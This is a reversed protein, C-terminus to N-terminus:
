IGFVIDLFGPVGNNGAGTALTGTIVNGQTAFDLFLDQTTSLQGDGNLDVFIRARGQVGAAGGDIDDNDFEIVVSRRVGGADVFFDNANADTIQNGAGSRDRVIAANIALAGQAALNFGSLDIKDESAVFPNTLVGANFTGFSDIAGYQSQGLSTYVIEDRLGAILQQNLQQGNQAGARMTLDSINLVETGDDAFSNIAALTGLTSANAVTIDTVAANVGLLTLEGADIVADGNNSVWQFYATGGGAATTDVVIIAQTGNAQAATWDKTIATDLAAPTNAAIFDDNTFVLVSGTAYAFNATNDVTQSTGNGVAGVIDADDIITLLRLEAADITADNAANATWVYVSVSDTTDLAILIQEGATINGAANAIGGTLQGAVLTMNTRDSSALVNDQTVLYVGNPQAADFATAATAQYIVGTGQLASWGAARDIVITDNGSDDFDNLNDFSTATNQNLAHGTDGAGTYLIRDNGGGGAINDGGGRGVLLDNGNGGNIVNDNDNGFLRDSQGSGTIQEFAKVGTIVNANFLPNSAAGAGDTEGNVVNLTVDQIVQGSTTGAGTGLDVRHHGGGVQGLIDTWLTAENVATTSNFKTGTVGTASSPAGLTAISVVDNTNSSGIVLLTGDTQVGNNDWQRDISITDTDAAGTDNSTHSVTYTHTVTAGKTGTFANVNLTYADSQGALIANTYDVVNSGGRLNLTEDANRDQFPSFVITENQNSGEIKEWLVEATGTAPNASSQMFTGVKSNAATSVVISTMQDVPTKTGGANPDVGNPDKVENNTVSSEVGFTVTVATDARSLDITNNVGALNSGVYREVGIGFDIRDNEAREFFTADGDTSVLVWDKEATSFDLVVAIQDNSTRYDLWDDGGALDFQILGNNEISDKVTYGRTALSYHGFFTLSSTTGADAAAFRANTFLSGDGVIVRDVGASGAVREIQTIGVVELLESGLNSATLSVGGAELTNAEVNAVSNATTQGGLSRGVTVGATGFNVTAGATASLDLKDNPGAGTTSGTTLSDAAAAIDLVEVGILTDTVTTTGLVGGTMAVTDTGAASEVKVTLSPRSSGAVTAHDYTVLDRGETFNGGPTLDPLEGALNIVNTSGAQTKDMVVIDNAAGGIVNEVGFVALAGAGIEGSDSTDDDNNRDAAWVLGADTQTLRLLVGENYNTSAVTPIALAAQDQNASAGTATAVSNSLGAFDITDQATNSATRVEEVGTLSTVGTKAGLVASVTAAGTTGLNPDVTVTFKTGAGFDSEQFLAVDTYANQLTLGSNNGGGNFTDTGWSGIYRDDGTGGNFTDNGLGGIFQDDGNAGTTSNADKGTVTEGVDKATQIISRSDATAQTAQGTRGLFLVNDANINGNRGGYNFLEISTTSTNALAWSASSTAANAATITVTPATMFVKLNGSGANDQNLILVREDTSGGVVDDTAANLDGAGTHVDVLDTNIQAALATLFTDTNEGTGVTRTIVQGNVTLQVKDGPQLNQFQLRWEQGNALVTSGDLGAVLLAGQNGLQATAAAGDDVWTNSARVQYDVFLVRDNEQLTQGGPNLTAVTSASSNSITVFVAYGEAVTDSIDRGKADSVLLANGVSTVTISSDIAAFAKNVADAIATISKLTTLSGSDLKIAGAVGPNIVLQVSGVATNVSTLDTTGFDILLRTAAVGSPDARFDQVFLRDGAADTDWLNDGNKDAQRRVIDTGDGFDFYFNDDGRGGGLEDDGGRGELNDNGSSLYVLNDGSDRFAIGTAGTANASGSGGGNAADINTLRTGDAALGFNADTWYNGFKTTSAADSDIGRVDFRAVSGQHNQQNNFVAEPSNSGAARYDIDGLGTAIVGEMNNVRSAPTAGLAANYNTQDATAAEVAGAGLGRNAGGYDRFQAGAGNGLDLRVVADKSLAALAAAQDAKNDAAYVTGQLRGVSFDTVFLADFHNGGDVRGSAAEYVISDNDDGGNLIDRGDSVVKVANVNLNLGGKADVLNPNNTHQILFSLNGGFLVDNGGSGNVTDNDYGGIVINASNSGDVILQATSGYGTNEKGLTPAPFREDVARRGVEVSVDNLFGYLNGSADVAEVGTQRSTGSGGSRTQTLGTPATTTGTLTAPNTGTGPQLGGEDTLVIRTAEDDDSAEVLVWDRDNTTGARDVLVAQTGDVNDATEGADIDLFSGDTGDIASLEVFFFDANRGGQLFDRGVATGIQGKGQQVGGGALFDNGIGGFIRDAGLGGLVINGNTSTGNGANGTGDYFISGLYNNAVDTQDLPNRAYANLAEYGKSNAAVTPNNAQLFASSNEKGNAAILGDGNLDLGRIQDLQDRNSFDFRVAQNGSINLVDFGAATSGNANFFTTSPPRILSDTTAPTQAYTLAASIQGRFAAAADALGAVPHTTLAAFGNVIAVITAGENGRGADTLVQAIYADITAKNQTIGVNTTIVAAVQAYTQGAFDRSFLDQVLRAASGAYATDVANLAWTMSANGLQTGYLAAAARAIVASNLSPTMTTAM